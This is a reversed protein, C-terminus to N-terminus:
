GLWVKCTRCTARASSSVKVRGLRVPQISKVMAFKPNQWGFHPRITPNKHQQLTFITSTHIGDISIFLLSGTLPFVSM